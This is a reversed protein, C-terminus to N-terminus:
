DYILAATVAPFIEPEGLAVGVDVFLLKQLPVM